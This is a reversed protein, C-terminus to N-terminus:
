RLTITCASRPEAKMLLKAMVSGAVNMGM